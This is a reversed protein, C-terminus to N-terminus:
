HSTRLFRRQQSTSQQLGRVNSSSSDASMIIADLRYGADPGDDLQRLAKGADVDLTRQAATGASTSSDNQRKIV